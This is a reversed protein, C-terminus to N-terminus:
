NNPHTHSRKRQRILAEYARWLTAFLEIQWDRNDILNVLYYNKNTPPLLKEFTTIYFDAATNNTDTSLVEVFNLQTLLEKLTQRVYHDPSPIIYVKLKAQTHCNKYLGFVAHTCDETFNDLQEKFWPFQQLYPCSQFFSLNREKLYNFSASDVARVTKTLDLIMPANGQHVCYNVLEVFLNLRLLFIQEYDTQTVFALQNFFFDSYDALTEVIPDNFDLNRIFAKLDQIRFDAADTYHTTLYLLYCIFQCHSKRQHEDPILPNLYDKIVTEIQGHISIDPRTAPDLLFGQELRIRSVALRTFIEEPPMFYGCTTILTQALNQEAQLDVNAELLDSGHSGSWLYTTYFMRVVSEPGAIQMKATQMTLGYQALIDKLQRLKRTATSSSQYIQQCFHEFHMEPSLLSHLVFQYAISNKVLFQIYDNHRYRKPQWILKRDSGLLQYQFIDQLDGSLESVLNSAKTYSLDLDVCLTNISYTGPCQLTLYEMIALKQWMNEELILPELLM